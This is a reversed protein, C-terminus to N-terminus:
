RREPQTTTLTHSITDVAKAIASEDRRYFTWRGIPSAVVLGSRTLLDMHRSASPQSIGLKNAIFVLCVGDEVLDGDTQPPFHEVPDILWELVRLRRDNALVDLLQAVESKTM